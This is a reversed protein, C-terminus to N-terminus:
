LYNSTSGASVQVSVHTLGTDTFLPHHVSRLGAYLHPSVSTGTCTDAHLQILGAAGQERRGGEGTLEAGHPEGVVEACSWGAAAGGAPCTLASCSRGTQSVPAEKRKSNMNIQDTRQKIKYFLFLSFYFSRVGSGSDLGPGPRQPPSLSCNLKKRPRATVDCVSDLHLLMLFWLHSLDNLFNPASNRHTKDFFVSKLAETKYKM